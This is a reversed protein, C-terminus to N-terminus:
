VEVSDENRRQFYNRLLDRLARQDAVLVWAGCADRSIAVEPDFQTDVLIDLRTKYGRDAKRGHWYHLITGAVYGINQQLACAREQWELICKRYTPHVREPIYDAVEGIFSRAMVSDAGGVIAKDFLGGLTDIAERTAAWGYGPHWTRYPKPENTKKSFESWYIDRHRYCYGFGKDVSLVENKPGLDVIDTFLQVVPHHQLEYVTDEMWTRNIFEIDGDIWAVYKWDSPLNLLGINILNEKYWLESTLHIQIHQPNNKDTVEFPSDGLVGEVIYLKSADIRKMFEKFLRVRTKYREPNTIVSVIYFHELMKFM